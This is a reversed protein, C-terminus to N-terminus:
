NFVNEELRNADAWTMFWVVTWCLDGVPIGRLKSSCHGFYGWPQPKNITSPAQHNNIIMSPQQHKNIIRSLGQHVTKWPQQHNNTKANNTQDPNTEQASPEFCNPGIEESPSQLITAGYHSNSAWNLSRATPDSTLASSSLPGIYRIFYANYAWPLDFSCPFRINEM